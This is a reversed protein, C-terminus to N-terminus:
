RGWKANLAQDKRGRARAMHSPMAFVPGAESGAGNGPLVDLQAYAEAIAEPDGGDDGEEAGSEVAALRRAREESARAADFRGNAKVRTAEAEALELSLRRELDDLRAGLAPDTPQETFHGLVAATLEPLAAAIAQLAELVAAFYAKM